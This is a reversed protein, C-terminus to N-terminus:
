LHPSPAPQQPVLVAIRPDLLGQPSIHGSKLFQLSQNRAASPSACPLPSIWTVFAKPALSSVSSLQAGSRPDLCPLAPWSQERFPSGTPQLSSSHCDPAGGAGERPFQQKQCAWASHSKFSPPHQHLFELGHGKTLPTNQAQPASQGLLGLEASAVRSVAAQGGLRRDGAKRAQLGEGLLPSM